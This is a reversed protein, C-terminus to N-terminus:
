DQVRPACSEHHQTSTSNTYIYYLIHFAKKHMGEFTLHPNIYRM